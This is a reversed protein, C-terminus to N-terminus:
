CLKLLVLSLRLASSCYPAGIFKNIINEYVIIAGGASNSYTAENFLCVTRMMPSYNILSIFIACAKVFAKRLVSSSPKVTM